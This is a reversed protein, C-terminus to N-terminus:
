ERLFHPPLETRRSRSVEQGETGPFRCGQTSVLLEARRPQQHAAGVEWLDRFLQEEPAGSPPAPGPTQEGRLPGRGTDEHVRGRSATPVTFPCAM